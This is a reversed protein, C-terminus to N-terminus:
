PPQPAGGEDVPQVPASAFGEAGQASLASVKYYVIGSLPNADMFQTGTTSGIMEYPGDQSVSRYIRYSSAGVVGSWDLQVYTKTQSTLKLARVNSPTGPAGIPQSILGSYARSLEEGQNGLAVVRYAYLNGVRVDMDTYLTEKASVEWLEEYPLGTVDKIPTINWPAGQPTSQIVAREIRYRSVSPGASTWQVDVSLGSPIARVQFASVATGAKERTQSWVVWGLLLAGLVYYSRKEQRKMEATKVPPKAEGVLASVLARAADDLAEKIAAERSVGNVKGRSKGAVVAEKVQKGEAVSFLKAGEMVTIIGDEEKLDEVTGLIIHSAGLLKGIEVARDVDTPPSTVEDEVLSGDEMLRKVMPSRPYYPIVDGKCTAYLAISFAVRAEDSLNQGTKDEFPFVLYADKGFLPLIGLIVVLLLTSLNAIRKM